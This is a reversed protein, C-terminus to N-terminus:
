VDVVIIDSPLGPPVFDFPFPFESIVIDTENGMDDLATVGIYYDGEINIDAPFDDPLVLECAPMDVKQYPTTDYNIAGQSIYVKHAVADSGPTWQIKKRRIKAM